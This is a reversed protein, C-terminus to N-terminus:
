IAFIFSAVPDPGRHNSLFDLVAQDEVKQGASVGREAAVALAEEVARKVNLAAEMASSGDSAIGLDLSLASFRDADEEITLVNFRRPTEESKGVRVDYTTATTMEVAM